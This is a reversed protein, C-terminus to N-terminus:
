REEAPGDSTGTASTVAREADEIAKRVRDVSPDDDCDYHLAYHYVTYLDALLVTVQTGSVGAVFEAPTVPTISEWADHEVHSFQPDGGADANPM